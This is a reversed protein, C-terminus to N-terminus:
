QMDQLFHLTEAFDWQHTTPTKTGGKKKQQQQQQTKELWLDRDDLFADFDYLKSEPSGDFVVRYATAADLPGLTAKGTAKATANKWSGELDALRRATFLPRERGFWAELVCRQREALDGERLLHRVTENNKEKKRFVAVTAHAGASCTLVMAFLDAFLPELLAAPYLSVVVYRGDRGLSRYACAALDSVDGREALTADATSKDFACDFCLDHRFEDFTACVWELDPRRERMAAIIASSRDMSVVRDFDRAVEESLTSTGCGVVLASGGPPVAGALASRVADYACLWEFSNVVVEHEEM